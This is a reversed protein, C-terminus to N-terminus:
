QSLREHDPASFHVSPNFPDFDPDGDGQYLRYIDAMWRVMRQSLHLLSGNTAINSTGSQDLIDHCRKLQVSVPPQGQYLAPVGQQGLKDVYWSIVYGDSTDVVIGVARGDSDAIEYENLSHHDPDIRAFTWGFYFSLSLVVVSMLIYLLEPM